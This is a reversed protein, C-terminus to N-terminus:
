ECIASASVWPPASERPICDARKPKDNPNEMGEWPNFVERAAGEYEVFKPMRSQGGLGRVRVHELWARLESSEGHHSLVDALRYTPRIKPDDVWYAALARSRLSSKAWAFPPIGLAPDVTHRQVDREHIMTAGLDATTSGEPVDVEFVRAWSEGSRLTGLGYHAPGGRPEGGETIDRWVSGPPFDVQVFVDSAVVGGPDLIHRWIEEFDSRANILWSAGGAAQGLLAIDADIDETLGVGFSWVEVDDRAWRAVDQVAKRQVLQDVHDTFLLVKNDHCKDFTLDSIKELVKPTEKDFARVVGVDLNELASMVTDMERLSTPPLIARAQFTEMAIISVRSYVPAAHFLETLAEKVIQIREVPRYLPGPEDQLVPLGREHVTEMSMSVDVVVTFNPALLPKREYAKAEVQVLWDGTIPAEAVSLDFAVPEGEAELGVPLWEMLKARDPATPYGGVHVALRQEHAWGLPSRAIALAGNPPGAQEVCIVDSVLYDDLAFDMEFVPDTAHAVFALLPLM